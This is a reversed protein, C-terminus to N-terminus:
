RRRVEMKGRTLDETALAIGRIVTTLHSIDIRRFEDCTRHYCKDDDDSSMITHAPIGVQAFSYNDSRMYLMQDPSPETIIKVGATELGSYLLKPLTTLNAGTIFASNIGYQPIGIMEININAVIQEPNIRQLFDKSGLLGLEEGAFACFVLTRENDGKRAFYKALELVAITGSANDNAGNWISDKNKGRTIGLHDYHASFVLVEAQKTKGPLVGVVNYGTKIYTPAAASLTLSDPRQDAYVFLFDQHIGGEPIKIESPLFQNGDPQIKNTWFLINAGTGNFASLINENICSDLEIINFDAQTLSAYQGPQQKLYVFKHPPVVHGNWVLLDRYIQKKKKKKNELSFPIFYSAQGPLPQLGAEQFKEGIFHAALIIGASGDARGMLSDSALFQLNAQVDKELISDVPVQASLVTKIFFLFFLLGVREMFKLTAM